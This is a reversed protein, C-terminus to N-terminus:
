ASRQVPPAAPEGTSDAVADERTAEDADAGANENSASSADAAATDSEAETSAAAVPARVIRDSAAAVPATISPQAPASVTQPADVLASYERVLRGQGWDVEVLFTLAPQTVPEVTTVRIVPNGRADLAVAFQLDSVIGEPPQLGIRRFT